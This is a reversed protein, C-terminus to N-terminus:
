KAQQANRRTPWTQSKKVNRRLENLHHSSLLVELMPECVLRNGCPNRHCVPDWLGMPTWVDPEHWEPMGLIPYLCVGRLPVGGLLLKEAERAVERLWPGRNDGVHATESIMVDQGYRKWVTRVLDSLTVRRRDDDELPPICGDPLPEQGWEWQNTWYYNIGVVDLHAPSGGLEPLLRGALMDWSEFVASNNFHRVAERDRPKEPHAVVRCLPDVNIIRAGPSAAWIAEIGMIAARCLAVKLDWGRGRLHPAFLGAQGGAYAMFSPENVPTFYSTGETRVDIHRAIAYCYDAFRDPFNESFLDVDRPYGYHFLDWIVQVDHCRAAELFPYISSFDYHGRGKDVLPWRVTERAARLGVRAIDRYDTAATRDHGTSVVQDFWDGSKNYGTSGEFGALFFSNFM